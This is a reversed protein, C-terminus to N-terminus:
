YGKLDGNKITLGQLDMNHKHKKEDSCIWWVQLIMEHIALFQFSLVDLFRFGVLEWSIHCRLLDWSIIWYIM